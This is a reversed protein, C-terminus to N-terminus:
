SIYATHLAAGQRNRIVDSNSYLWSTLWSKRSCSRPSTREDVRLRCLIAGRDLQWHSSLETFSIKYM